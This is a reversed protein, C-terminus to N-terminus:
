PLLGSGAAQQEAQSIATAEDGPLLFGEAVLSNAAAVAAANYAATTPYREAISLRPDGSAQRAALTKAFPIFSGTLDCADGEGYGAARTNWGTYTGLPARLTISLVGDIDNGDINVQPVLVTYDTIRLPPEISEYGSVDFGDWQPGRYYLSRQNLLVGLEESVNPILPFKVQEPRVLTGDSIRAYRSAPPLQNNVVWKTLAVLIARLSYTYSNANPLQQCVPSAVPPVPGTPSYGGHQTSAFHYLRVNAPISLDRLGFDDATDNSMASGWYEISSFAATIKPCTDTERCRELISGTVGALRDHYSNWTMPSECGAYEHETHQLGAGRGPQGFRVNLPLRCSAIQPLAGEFVIRNNEDQNFGLDIFTRVFRGSQSVGHILTHNIAGALPNTPATSQHFFSIL